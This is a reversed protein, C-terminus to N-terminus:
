PRFVVRRECLRIITGPTIGLGQAIACLVDLSLPDRGDEIDDLSAALLGSREALQKTTWGLAV